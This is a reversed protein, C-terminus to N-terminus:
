PKSSKESDRFNAIQSRLANWQRRSVPLKEPLGSVLAWAYADGDDQIREFGALASKAILTSRHLRLFEDPFEAELHNLSEDLLYERELTRATVYKLDSKFYRVEAVPVLLIRGREHCSLHSRGKGRVTQGLTQLQAATLQQRRQRAKQLAALLRQARVPKMLYDVANLEFAQVAHHDYATTFIVAPPKELKELHEALELGDMHPMHIDALIIDLGDRSDHQQLWALATLGNNAETLVRSPCEAAIDTLLTKLRTRALAEDDVIMLTLPQENTTM